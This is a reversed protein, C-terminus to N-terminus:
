SPADGGVTSKPKLAAAFASTEDATGFARRPIVWGSVNGFLVFVHDATLVVESINARDIRSEHSEGLQRVSADEIVFRKRGCNWSQKPPIFEGARFRSYGWIGTWTTVLTIVMTVLDIRHGALGCILAPMAGVWVGMGVAGVWLRWRPAHTKLVRQQVHKSFAELDSPSIDAAVSFV